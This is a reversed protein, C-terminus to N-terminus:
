FFFTKFHSSYRVITASVVVFNLLSKVIVVHKWNLNHTKQMKQLMKKSIVSSKWNWRIIKNLLMEFFSQLYCEIRDYLTSCKIWAFPNPYNRISNFPSFKIVNNLIYIDQTFYAKNIDIINAFMRRSFNKWLLQVWLGPFFINLNM